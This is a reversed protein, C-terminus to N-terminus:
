FVFHFLFLSVSVFCVPPQLLPPPHPSLCFLHLLNFPGFKWNYFDLFFTMYIVPFTTLLLYSQTTDTTVSSVTIIM